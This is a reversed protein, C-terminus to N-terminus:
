SRRNLKRNLQHDPNYFIISHRSIENLEQLALIDSGGTEIWREGHRRYIQVNLGFRKEFEKEVSKVKSGPNITIMGHLHKKRIVGLLIDPGYPEKLSSRERQHAEHFFELKLFPFRSCFERQVDCVKRADNIEIIM